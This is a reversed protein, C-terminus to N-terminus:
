HPRLDIVESKIVKNKYAYNVKLQVLKNESSRPFTYQFRIQKSKGMSLSGTTVKTKKLQIMKEFGNVAAISVTYGARLAEVKPSVNLDMNHILTRRRFGSVVRPSSDYKKDISIAPNVSTIAQASFNEERASNYKGGSFKMKGTISVTQNSAVQTNVALKIDTYAFSTNGKAVKLYYTNQEVKANNVSTVTVMVPATLDKPSINKLKVSLTAISGGKLDDSVIKSNKITLTPNNTIWESVESDATTKARATALPLEIRYAEDKALQYTEAYIDAEGDAIGTEQAVPYFSNYDSTYQNEITANRKDETTNVYLETYQSSYNAKYEALYKAKFSNAYADECTNIFVQIEKYVEQCSFEQYPILTPSQYTNQADENERNLLMTQNLNTKFTAISSDLTTLIDNSDALEQGTVPMVGSLVNKLSFTSKHFLDNKELQKANLTLIKIKQANIQQAFISNFFQPKLVRIAYNKANQRGAASGQEHGRSREEKSNNGMVYGDQYGTIEARVSAWLNSQAIALKTGMMEGLELSRADVYTNSDTTAIAVAVDTQNIGISKAESLKQNFYNYRSLYEEYKRDRAIIATRQQSSLVDIEANKTAITSQAIVLNADHEKMQAINNLTRNNIQPIQIDITNIENEVVRLSHNTNKLERDVEIIVNNNNDATMILQEYRVSERALRKQVKRQREQLNAVETAASDLSARTEIVKLEANAVEIKKTAILVNKTKLNAKSKKIQGPLVQKRRKLNAINVAITQQRKTMAIINTNTKKISINLAKLEKTKKAVEARLTKIEPNARDARILDAMKKRLVTLEENMKKQKVQKKALNIKAKEIKAPLTIQTQEAASIQQDINNLQTVQKNLLEKISKKQVKLSNLTARLQKSVRTTKQLNKQLRNVQLKKNQLKTRVKSLRDRIPNLRRDEALIERELELQRRQLSIIERELSNAHSELEEERVFLNERQEKLQIVQSENQANMAELEQISAILSSEQSYAFQLERKVHELNTTIVNVEAVYQNYQIKYPEPNIEDPLEASYATLSIVPTLLLCALKIAM